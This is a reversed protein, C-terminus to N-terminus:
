HRVGPSMEQVQLPPGFQVSHVQDGIVAEGTVAVKDEDEHISLACNM